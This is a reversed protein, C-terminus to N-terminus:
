PEVSFASAVIARCTPPASATMAELAEAPIQAPKPAAAASAAGGARRPPRTRHHGPQNHAPDPRRSLPSRSRGHQSLHLRAHRAGHLLIIGLRPTRPCPRPVRGPRQGRLRCRVRPRRPRLLLDHQHPHRPVQPRNRHAESMIRQREDLPLTYWKRTKVMPYVFLYDARGGDERLTERGATEPHLPNQYQSRMTMSLYSYPRELAAGLPSNVLAAHWDMILRLDDSVQWILFDTDARTGITSYTRTLM